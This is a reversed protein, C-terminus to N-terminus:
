VKMKLKRARKAVHRQSLERSQQDQYRCFISFTADHSYLNCRSFSYLLMKVITLQFNQLCLSFYIQLLGLNMNQQHTFGVQIVSFLRFARDQGASLIHRGNAYFRDYTSLLIRFFHILSFPMWNGQCFKQLNFLIPMLQYSLPFSISCACLQISTVSRSNQFVLNFLFPCSPSHM